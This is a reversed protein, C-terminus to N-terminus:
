RPTAGPGLSSRAEPSFEPLALHSAEAGGGALAAANGRAWHPASATSAFPGFPHRCGPDCHPDVYWGSRTVPGDAVGDDGAWRCVIPPDGLWRPIDPSVPGPGAEADEM